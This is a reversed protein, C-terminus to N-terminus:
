LGTASLRMGAMHRSHSTILCILPLVESVQGMGIQMYPFCLNIFSAIAIEAECVVLVNPVSKISKLEAKLM